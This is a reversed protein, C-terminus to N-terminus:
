FVYFTQKLWFGTIYLVFAERVQQLVEGGLLFLWLSELLLWLWNQAAREALGGGHVSALSLPLFIYIFARLYKVKHKKVPPGNLM